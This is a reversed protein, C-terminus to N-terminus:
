ALPAPPKTVSNFNSQAQSADADAIVGKGIGDDASATLNGEAPRYAVDGSVQPAAVTQAGL